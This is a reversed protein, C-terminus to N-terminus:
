TAINRKINRSNEIRDYMTQMVKLYLDDGLVMDEIGSDVSPNDNVEIVYAKGGAMKLDVGYFGDGIFSTARLATNLIDEPVQDLSLTESAGATEAQGQQSWDYIQWHGAAMYYKCAYLPQNDLVGIRWDYATEMFEQVIVLESSEFLMELLGDFEVDDKAKYVGLSFSSDPKKIILPYSREEIQESLPRNRSVIWSKPMPIRGKNMREDLYLKNSCKLISWPDDMVVLGEAYAYRSFRYTYNNVETTARIFLADYEGIRHYDEKYIFDVYFGISEAAKKFKELAKKDSPPNPEEPDVLIAMDYKYDKFRRINFRKQSFYVQANAAARDLEDTAIGTVSVPEVRVLEWDNRHEFSLKLFPAEFLSYVEKALKRYKRDATTGFWVQLEFTGEKVSALSEQMTEHIEEGISGTIIGDSFDKITAATPIVRQDRAAALLSVYYGLTQYEYSSCLNFIRIGAAAQYKEDSIYDRARIIEINGVGSLWDLAVDSVVINRLRRSEQTVTEMLPKKMRYAPEAPGYYDEITSEIAFGNKRYWDVLQTNKADAELSLGAFGMSRAKNTIFALVATGTGKGGHDPHVALSYIRMTRKFTMVIAAAEKIGGEEFVYVEQSASM